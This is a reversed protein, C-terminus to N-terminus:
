TLPNGTDVAPAGPGAPTMVPEEPEDAAGRRRGRVWLSPIFQDADDEYYRLYRMERRIEEHTRVLLTVARRRVEMAPLRSVNQERAGLADLMAEAAARARALDARTLPTMGQIRAWHADLVDVLILTSRATAEYGQIDRGKALEGADVVKRNVLSTLDTILLDYETRVADHTASLNGSSALAEERTAAQQCARGLVPLADLREGSARGFEEILIARFPELNQSAAIASSGATVGDLKPDRLVEGPPLGEIREMLSELERADAGDSTSSSTSTSVTTDTM